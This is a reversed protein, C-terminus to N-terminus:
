LVYRLWSPLEPFVAASNQVKELSETVVSSNKEIRPVPSAPKKTKEM